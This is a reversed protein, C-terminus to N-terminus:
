ILLYKYNGNFRTILQVNGLELKHDIKIAYYNNRDAFRFMFAVVGLDFFMLNFEVTGNAWEKEKLSIWSGFRYMGLSTIKGKHQIGTLNEEEGKANRFHPLKIYTWSNSKAYSPAHTLEM